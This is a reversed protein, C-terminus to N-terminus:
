KVFDLPDTREIEALQDFHRDTSLIRTLGNELMVLASSM